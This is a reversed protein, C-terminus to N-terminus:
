NGNEKGLIFALYHPLKYQMQGKFATINWFLEFSYQKFLLIFEYMIQMKLPTPHM